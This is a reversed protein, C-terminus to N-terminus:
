NIGSHFLASGINVALVLLTLNFLVALARQIRGVGRMQNGILNAADSQGLTGLSIALLLFDRYNVHRGPSFQFVAPTGQAQAYFYAQAYHQAFMVQTFTWATAFTLAALAMSTLRPLGMLDRAVALEAVVACMCLLAAMVALALCELRGDQQLMALVRASSRPSGFFQRSIVVLFVGVGANWGLLAQNLWLPEAQSPVLWAVLTGLLLSLWLMPRSLLVRLMYPVSSMAPVPHAVIVGGVM